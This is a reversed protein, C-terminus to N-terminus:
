FLESGVYDNRKAWDDEIMKHTIIFVWMKRRIPLTIDFRGAAWDELSTANTTFIRATDGALVVNKGRARAGTTSQPDALIKLIGTSMYQVQEKDGVALEDFMVAWGSKCTITSLDELTTSALVTAETKPRGLVTTMHVAFKCALYRAITSKGYGTTSDSGMFVVAHERLLEVHDLLYDLDCEMFEQVGAENQGLLRRGVMKKTSQVGFEDSVTYDTKFFRRPAINMPPRCVKWFLSSDGLPERDARIEAILPLCRLVARDHETRTTASKAVITGRLARLDAPDLRSTADLIQEFSLEGPDATQVLLNTRSRVCCQSFKEVIKKYCSQKTGAFRWVKHSMCVVGFDPLAKGDKKRILVVRNVNDLEGVAFAVDFKKLKETLTDFIAEHSVAAQGIPAYHVIMWRARNDPVRDELMTALEDWTTSPVSVRDVPTPLKYLTYNELVCFPVGGIFNDVVPVGTEEIAALGGISVM